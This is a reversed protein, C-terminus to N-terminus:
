KLMENRTGQMEQRPHEANGKVSFTPLFTQAQSELFCFPLGAAMSEVTMCVTKNGTSVRLFAM